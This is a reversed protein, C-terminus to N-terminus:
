DEEKIFTGDADFEAEKHQDGLKFDAEYIIKGDHKETKWEVNTAGAYKAEFAAIVTAPVESAAVKKDDCSTFLLGVSLIGALFISKKM